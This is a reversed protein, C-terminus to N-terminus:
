DWSSDLADEDLSSTLSLCGKSLESDGGGLDEQEKYTFELRPLAGHKLNESWMQSSSSSWTWYELLIVRPYIEAKYM